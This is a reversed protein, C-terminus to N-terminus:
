PCLLNTCKESMSGESNLDCWISDPSKGQVVLALTLCLKHVSLARKSGRHPCYNTMKSYSRKLLSHLSVEKSNLADVRLWIGSRRHHTQEVAELCFDFNDHYKYFFVYFIHIHIFFLSDELLHPIWYINKQKGQFTLRLPREWHIKWLQNFHTEMDM